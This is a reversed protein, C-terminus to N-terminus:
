SIACVSADHQIIKMSPNVIIATIQPKIVVDTYSSLSHIHVSDLYNKKTNSVFYTTSTLSETTITAIYQMAAMDVRALTIGM